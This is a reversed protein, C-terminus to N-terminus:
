ETSESDSEEARGATGSRFTAIIGLALVIYGAIQADRGRDIHVDFQAFLIPALLVLALGTQIITIILSTKM